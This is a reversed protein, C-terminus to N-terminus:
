FFALEDIAGSDVDDGEDPEGLDALGSRADFLPLVSILPSAGLAFPSFDDTSAFLFAAGGSSDEPFLLRFRADAASSKSGSASIREDSEGLGM